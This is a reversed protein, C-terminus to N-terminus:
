EYRLSIIPDVKTARRAPICTAVIAVALLLLSLFAYTAPDTPSVAYLQSTLVRSLIMAGILGAALGLAMWIIVQRLVMVFVNSRQAGLAMRLGIERTRQTIAYSLVGYLGISALLLAFGSFISMLFANFRSAATEDSLLEDMTAIEYIPIDRDLKQITRRVSASMAAPDRYTRVLLFLNLEKRQALPLYLDPDDPDLMPDNILVRHKIEAAVGAVTIWPNTSDAQGFKIRKGVPNENPWFKRAMQESVIVTEPAGETDADTFARGNLIPVKLTAFYNPSILHRYIRKSQPPQTGDLTVISASDYGAFPLNSAVAVSDISPLGEVEEILQRTFGNSRGDSYKQEPLSLIMTLLHDKKFGIPIQQKNKLSQIMLGAGILLMLALATESIVLIGRLSKASRTETSQVAAEKLSSQPDTATIRIASFLGIFFGTLFSIAITFFLVSSDIEIQVYSPLTVPSFRKMLQIAWLALLSGSIGGTIGLLVSETILQRIIRTRSAGLATRVAFEKQRGSTRALMLNAVNVCAILLVFAVAGLLIRVASKLFGLVEERFPILMVSYHENTGPYEEELRKTVAKMSAQAQQITIGPKLRGIVEHWRVGRKNLIETQQFLPLTSFPIWIEPKGQLGSFEEPLVGIVNTDRNNLRINRGIVSPDNGFHRKWFDFSIVAVASSAPMRDEEAHFTRGKLPRIGLLQFYNASVLEIQVQEAGTESNLTLSEGSYAAIQSFVSNREQWNLFDPYSTGRRELNERQVTASVTVLKEPEPFPLARLLVVNFVSFIAVNMGIALTLTLVAIFTFSPSKVLFRIGHRIDNM